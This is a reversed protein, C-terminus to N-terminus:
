LPAEHPLELIRFSMSAYNRAQWELQNVDDALRSFRLFGVRYFTTSGINFPPILGSELTLTETGDGNDVAGIVHVYTTGITPHWVWIHRRAGGSPFLNATYGIWKIVWSPASFPPTSFEFDREWSLMWFPVAQGKRADLFARLASVQPRTECSWRYLRVLRPYDESFADRDFGVPSRIIGVRQEQSDEPGGDRTDIQEELVDFGAYQTM